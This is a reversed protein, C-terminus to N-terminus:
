IKKAFEFGLLVATFGVFLNLFINILALRYDSQRILNITEYSFTSFTTLAGMMGTGLLLKTNLSLKTIENGYVTLFGLIFCGLINVILTGHPFKNGFLTQTWFTIWYRFNSGIFGGIGLALIKQLM